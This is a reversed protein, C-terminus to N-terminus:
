ALFDLLSVSGQTATVRLGAELQTQLLSFRTAAEAYDVDQLSSLVQLDVMNRDEEHDSATAARQAFGGVAGRSIALLEASRVLSQDAFGIGLTDNAELSNKLDILDSFLGDVRVKARDQATLTASSASYEANLFGLQEAAPSNNRADISIADSFTNDQALQIGNATGSLGATLATTPLGAATLAAAAQGNIRDLLTQVSAMDQPRLDIDIQTRAANGLTITFDVDKSPDPLGTTPDVTGDVVRVGRGSNFDTLLTEQSLTRIGLRSATLNSGAVESISMAGAEGASLENLVDLGTGADNIRVRVALRASEIANKIDELTAANSLDVVASGSGNSIRVSGLPGSLGSLASVPTRWTLKPATDLGTGSTPSFAFPSAESALGLDQASTGTDLDFFALSNAGAAVDVTLSGGSFSVGGAGLVTVGNATEYDRIANTIRTAVDQVTDATSLDVATRTGGNFSFEMIGATVGLGRAGALDSLRTDGSLSPDLDVTGRVRASTGGLGAAAAVTVPVSQALGLETFLGEGSAVYRYGGLMETFPTMDPNAGGFIYGAVGSRNAGNFLGSIMSAVVSAQSRREEAGSPFGVQASAMQRAQAALDSTEGLATDIVGLSAKAHSINRARQESRELRSDLELITASKVADDSIKNVVRGTALQTQINLLSINTSRLNALAILSSQLTSVRSLGAPISTM